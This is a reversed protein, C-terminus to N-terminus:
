KYHGAIHSGSDRDEGEEGQQVPGDTRHAGEPHRHLRGGRGGIVVAARTALSGVGRRGRRSMLVVTRGRGGAGSVACGESLRNRDRWGGHVRVRDEGVRSRQESDGHGARRQNKM